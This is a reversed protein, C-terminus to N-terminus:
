TTKFQEDMEVQYGSVLRGSENAMGAVAMLEKSMAEMMGHKRASATHSAIYYNCQITFSVACYMLEKTSADLTGPAMDKEGDPSQPM